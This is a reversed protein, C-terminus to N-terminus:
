PTFQPHNKAIWEEVQERFKKANAVLENAEMESAINALDYDVANRKRRCADFYTALKAAGKGMAIKVAQFMTRHHAPGTVRYGVCAVAMKALQLVANYATAFRRDDSLGPLEADAIDRAVVARLGDLEQM